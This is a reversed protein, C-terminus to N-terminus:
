PGALDWADSTSLVAQIVMIAAGTVGATENSRSQVISLHQTALPISRRYVTERVGAILQEGARSISGGVVIVSPNLLNVVSALVAGIERGAERVLALAERNGQRVLAVVDASSHADIGRERLLAAIAPGSAIGELDRDDDSARTSDPHWPVHVHGLDGASGQAGRQLAGGAVVGAGIGTSVKVFVLDDADPWATAHEGLALINVDNDVLVPVDFTRRLRAPVDFRDWGPMIPPNVPRGTSHEVPGPVGVGVGVLDTAPRGGAELLQRGTTAAWELVAEPGAAIDLQSTTHDLLTGALDTIAVTGHTAGLDIALVIRSSPLFAIRAPPRGGSSAAEGAPGVLGLSILTDVRASVTSRSLGTIEMIESRTRPVGDRLLHLIEGVGSGRTSALRSLEVM